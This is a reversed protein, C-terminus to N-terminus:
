RMTRFYTAVLECQATGRATTEVRLPLDHGPEGFRLGLVGAQADIVKVKPGGRAVEDYRVLTVCDIACVRDVFRQWGEPRHHAVGSLKNKEAPPRADAEPWTARPGIQGRERAAKFLLDGAATLVTHGEDDDEVLTRLEPRAKLWSEVEQSDRPEEDIWKFFDEHRSVFDDDWRLPLRPLRVLSRHREHMYVVEIDRLAGLLNLFAIEAKFGGTACLLPQHGRQEAERILRLTIDVLGKLGATFVDAGYGLRRIKEISVNTVRKRYYEGLVEACFRGEDTDSHLLALSDTEVVEVTHLTNTEATAKGLDATELWRVVTRHEPLSQGQKWGSWPRGDNTLLSTGVTCIIGRSM